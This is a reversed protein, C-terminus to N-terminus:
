SAPKGPVRKGSPAKRPRAAPRRSSGHVLAEATLAADLDFAVPREAGREVGREVPAACYPCAQWLRDLPAACAACPEKLTTTCVPCVLFTPEVEAHCVPCHPSRKLLQWELADIEARRAHADELTEPPRFLLYVLPGALPVLGLLTATGVLWPDDIRRRADRHVWYAVGLWFLVVFFGAVNRAVQFATSHFLDHVSAFASM